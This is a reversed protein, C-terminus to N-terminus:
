RSKVLEERVMALTMEGGREMGAYENVVNELQEEIPISYHDSLKRVEAFFAHRFMAICAIFLDGDPGGIGPGRELIDIIDLLNRSEKRLVRISDGVFTNEQLEELTSTCTHRLNHIANRLYHLEFFKTWDGLLLIRYDELRTIMRKAVDFEIKNTFRSENSMLHIEVLRRIGKAVDLLAEDRNRWSSIPKADRPLAQLKGFKEHTWDCPRLIVPICVATKNEHRFLAREVEVNRCYDSALFSPSVLLLIIDATELEASIENQWEQGAVINRDHWNQLLGQHKLTSLHEEM